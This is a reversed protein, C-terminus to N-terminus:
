ALFSVWDLIMSILTRSYLFYIIINTEIIENIYKKLYKTICTASGTTVKQSVTTSVDDIFHKASVGLLFFLIVM